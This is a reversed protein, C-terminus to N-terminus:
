TIRKRLEDRFNLFAQRLPLPLVMLDLETVTKFKDLTM